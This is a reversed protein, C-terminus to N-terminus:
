APKDNGVVKYRLIWDMEKQRIGGIRENRLLQRITRKIRRRCTPGFGLRFGLITDEGNEDKTHYPVVARAGYPYRM